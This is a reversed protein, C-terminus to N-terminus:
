EEAQGADSHRRRFFTRVLGPRLGCEPAAVLLASGALVVGCAGGPGGAGLAAALLCAPMAAFFLPPLLTPLLWLWWRGNVILHCTLFGTWSLCAALLLTGALSWGPRYLIGGAPGSAAQYALFPAWLLSIGLVLGRWRRWAPIHAAPLPQRSPAPPESPLRKRAARTMEAM